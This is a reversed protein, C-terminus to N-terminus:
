QLREATIHPTADILALTLLEISEYVNSKTFLSCSSFILHKCPEVEIYSSCSDRHEEMILRETDEIETEFLAEQDTKNGLLLIIKHRRNSQSMIDKVWASLRSIHYQSNRDYILIYAEKNYFSSKYQSGLGHM